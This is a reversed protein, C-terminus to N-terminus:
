QFFSWKIVSSTSRLGSACIVLTRLPVCSTRFAHEGLAVPLSLTYMWKRMCLVSHIFMSFSAEAGRRCKKNVFRRLNDAIAFITWINLWHKRWRKIFQRRVELCLLSGTSKVLKKWCPVVAFWNIWYSLRHPVRSCKCVRWM